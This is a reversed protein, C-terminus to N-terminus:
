KKLFKDLFKKRDQSDLTKIYQQFELNLGANLSLSIGDNISKKALSISLQPNKSIKLLFNFASKIMNSTIIEDILGYDFAVKSSIKEGTFIMRKAKSLGILRPLRQTGGAGPIIGISCEPLAFIATKDCFRFDCALAIELGGGLCAGSICSITPFPLSEIHDTLKKISYVTDVTQENNMKAREKLDAGASFNNNSSSIIIGRCGVKDLIEELLKTINFILEVSLANVPPNDIYVTYINNKIDVQIM